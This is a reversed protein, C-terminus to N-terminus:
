WYGLKKLKDRIQEQEEWALTPLVFDTNNGRKEIIQQAYANDTPVGFVCFFDCTPCKYVIDFAYPRVIEGEQNRTMRVDPVPHLRSRRMVLISEIAPRRNACMPCYIPETNRLGIEDNTKEWLEKAM